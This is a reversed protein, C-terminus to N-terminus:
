HSHWTWWPGSIQEDYSIGPSHSPSGHPCYAFGYSDIMIQGTSFLVCTGHTERHDVHYLGIWGDLTENELVAAEFASRSLAFRADLLVGSATLALLAGGAVFPLLYIAVARKSVRRSGARLFAALVTFLERVAVLPAIFTLFFFALMFFFGSGGSGIYAAVVCWVFLAWRSRHPRWRQESHGPETEGVHDAYRVHKGM